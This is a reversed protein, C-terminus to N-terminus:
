KKLLYILHETKDHWHVEDISDGPGHWTATGEYAYQLWLKRGTLECHHPWLAFSLKWKARNYFDKLAEKRKPDDFSMWTTEIM